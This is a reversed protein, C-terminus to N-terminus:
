LVTSGIRSGPVQGYTQLFAPTTGDRGMFRVSTAVEVNANTGTLSDTASMQMLQTLDLTGGFTVTYPGGASGTVAVNGTGITSLAELAADVTAASANYALASTSQGDYTMRFTGGTVTGVLTVTQIVHPQAEGALVQLCAALAAEPSLTDSLTRLPVYCGFVVKGTCSGGIQVGDAGSAFAADPVDVRYYGDSITLFGGDAHATALTALTVPTISVKAGGERRYWLALSSTAYTLTDDPQNSTADFIRVVVSQDTSGKDITRSM